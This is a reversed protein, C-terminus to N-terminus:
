ENRLALNVASNGPSRTLHLEVRDGPLWAEDYLLPQGNAGTTVRTSHWAPSGPECELLRAIKKKLAVCRLTEAASVPLQGSAERLWEYLSRDPSYAEVLQRHAM